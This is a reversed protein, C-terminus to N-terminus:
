MGASVVRFHNRSHMTGIAGTMPLCSLESIRQLVARYWIRGYNVTVRWIRDQRIRTSPLPRLRIDDASRSPGPVWGQDIDEDASTLALVADNDTTDFAEDVEYERLYTVRETM